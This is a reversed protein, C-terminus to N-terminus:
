YVGSFCVPAPACPVIPPPFLGGKKREGEWREGRAKIKGRELRRAGRTKEGLARSYSAEACIM